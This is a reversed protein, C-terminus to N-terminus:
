YKKTQWYMERELEEKPLSRKGAEILRQLITGEELILSYVSIHEPQLNIVQQISEQLLRKTQNPLGYMLDVNINCFGVQRALRYTQLFEQYTHIRGIEKLLQNITSQLGISLRNMGMKKYDELKEKTVTGPNLEITIEAHNEVLYNQKITDIINGILKSNIYSPTGGGIYITTVIRGNAKPSNQKIEKKVAEVYQEQWIDKKAFSVFDCYYCKQKCFPIHVYIGLEEKM